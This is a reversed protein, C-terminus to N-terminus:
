HPVKKTKLFVLTEREKSRQKRWEKQKFIVM